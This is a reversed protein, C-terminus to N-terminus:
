HRGSLYREGRQTTIYEVMESLASRKVEKWKLDSLPDSIFDFLVCAQRIKQIFLDEREQGPFPSLSLFGDNYRVRVRMRCIHVLSELGKRNMGPATEMLLPLKQLERKGNINATTSGQNPSNNNIRQNIIGGGAVGGGGLAGATRKADIPPIAATKQIEKEKKNKAMYRGPLRRLWCECSNREAFKTTRICRRRRCARCDSHGASCAGSWVNWFAEFSNEHIGLRSSLPFTVLSFIKVFVFPCSRTSVLWAPAVIHRRRKWRCKVDRM